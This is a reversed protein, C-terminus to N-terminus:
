MSHRIQHLKCQIASNSRELAVAAESVTIEGSLVKDFVELDKETYRFGRKYANEQNKNRYKNVAIQTRLRGNCTSRYKKSSEYRLMANHDLLAELCESGFINQFEPLSLNVIINQYRCRVSMSNSRCLIVRWSQSPLIRITCANERLTMMEITTSLCPHCIFMNTARREHIQIDKKNM